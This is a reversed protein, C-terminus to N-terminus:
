TSYEGSDWPQHFVIDQPQLMVCESAERIGDYEELHHEYILGYTVGDLEVAFPKVWVDCFEPEGAQMLEGCMTKLHESAKEGAVDRGEIDFAGLRSESGIHNGDADFRHIVALWRKKTKWDDGLYHEQGTPFAGTVFAMFQTGNPLRGVSTFRGYDGDEYPIRLKDPAPM